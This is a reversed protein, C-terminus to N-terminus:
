LEKVRILEKMTNIFGHTFTDPNSEMMAVVRAMDIKELSKVEETERFKWELLATATYIAWYHNLRADKPLFTSIHKIPTVLGLEELMERKAASKYSEGKRVHGGVSIDLKGYKNDKQLYLGGDADFVFVGIVRHMLKQDHATEADTTGVINNSKDVIDIPEVGAMHVIYYM